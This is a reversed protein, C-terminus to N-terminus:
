DDSSQADNQVSIKAVKLAFSNDFNFRALTVRLATEYLEDPGLDRNQAIFQEVLKATEARIFKPLHRLVLREVAEKSTEGKGYPPIARYRAVFDGDEQRVHVPITLTYKENIKMEVQFMTFKSDSYAM